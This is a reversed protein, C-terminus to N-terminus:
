PARAGPRAPDRRPTSDLRRPGGAGSRGRQPPVLDLASPESDLFTVGAAGRSLAELGVAGTGAFADLMRAGLPMPGEPGPYPGHALMDFLAQRTREATPRIARDGPAALRRGGLRGGVIRM